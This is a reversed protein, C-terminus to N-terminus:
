YPDSIQASGTVIKGNILATPVTNVVERVSAVRDQINPELSYSRINVVHWYSANANDSAEAANLFFSRFPPNAFHWVYSDTEPLYVDVQLQANKLRAIPSGDTTRVYFMYQPVRMLKSRQSSFTDVTFAEEHSQGPTDGRGHHWLSTISDLNEVGGFFSAAPVDFYFTSTGKVPLSSGEVIATLPNNADPIIFGSTFDATGVWHVVLRVDGPRASDSTNGTARNDYQAALPNNASLGFGDRPIIPSLLLDYKWPRDNQPDAIVPFDFLHQTLGGNVEMRYNPFDGHSCIDHSNIYAPDTGGPDTIPRLYYSTLDGALYRQYLVGAKTQPFAQQYYTSSVILEVSGKATRSDNPVIPNLAYPNVVNVITGGVVVGTAASNALGCKICGGTGTEKIILQSCKNSCTETGKKLTYPEAPEQACALVQYGNHDPDPQGNVTPLTSTTSSASAWIIGSTVDLDCVELRGNGTKEIIGNGCRAVPTVDIISQCGAACYSCSREYGPTCVVGNKNGDDCAEGKDVRNDGCSGPPALAQLAAPTIFCGAVNQFRDVVEADILARPYIKIDRLLGRFFNQGNGGRGITLPATNVDMVPNAARLTNTDVLTGNIYLKMVQVQTTPDWFFTGLVHTWQRIPLAATSSVDTSGTAGVFVVFQVHGNWPNIELDYGGGVGYGGKELIRNWGNVRGLNVTAEVSFSSTPMLAAAHSVTILDDVGDFSFAPKSDNPTSSVYSPCAPATCTGPFGISAADDFIMKQTFKNLKSDNLRWWAATTTDQWHCFSDCARTGNQNGITCSNVVGPDCEEGLGSQVIKDGCYPGYSQCDFNCSRTRTFAYKVGSDEVRVCSGGFTALLASTNCDINQGSANVHSSNCAKEPSIGNVCWGDLTANTTDTIECLEQPQKTNDGCFGSFGFSRCGLNYPIAAVQGPADCRNYLGNFARGDDCIEGAQRDVINDGCVSLQSCLVNGGGLPTTSATWRCTQSCVDVHVLGNTCAGLKSQGPPDCQEGKDIHVVKDGCRGSGLSVIEQDSNCIGQASLVTVHTSSVFDSVFGSANALASFFPLDELHARVQYDQTSTVFNYRYAFSSTACAFSFRNNAISWGTASDHFVCTDPITTNPKNGCQGNLETCFINTSSACTGSVGLQNIPDYPLSVKGLLDGLLSWSQPWVSLTQGPIFSGKQLDPYLPNPLDAAYQTVSAQIKHLDRLRQYNNKLAKSRVACVLGNCDLDSTCPKTVDPHEDDVGCFGYSNFNVNFRLNKMFSSFVEQTEPKANANISFLYMTSYLRGTTTSYNLADVYYNTGSKAAPYGDIDPITQPQGIFGPQELFWDAPLLHRPNSFVQVGIADKNKDTTFIFRKLAPAIAASGQVQVAPRLWPLDDATYDSKGKDACYYSSFNFYGDAILQGANNVAPPTHSNTYQNNAADFNDNNDTTDRYPFVSFPGTASGLTDTYYADLPPWPNACLLVTVHAQGTAVTGLAAGPASTADVVNVAVLVDAEGNNNKATVTTTAVSSDAVTIYPNQVPGWLYNWAYSGPLSQITQGDNTGPAATFVTSSGTRNFLWQHPTVAVLDVTCLQTATGFWWRNEPIIKVGQVSKIGDKLIIAYRTDPNLPQNLKVNVHAGGTIPDNNIVDVNGFDTSACWRIPNLPAAAGASGGFIWGVVAHVWQALRQYWSGTHGSPSASALLLATVDEPCNGVGNDGRAILLNGPLSNKDIAQNFNAWIVTNPCVPYTPPTTTAPTTSILQPRLHCCSDKGVGMNQDGTASVCDLDTQYGCAIRYEGSGEVPGGRTQDTTRAIIDTRQALPIGSPVGLGVGTALTWPDIIGQHITAWRSNECTADEGVGVVGDGCVSPQVYLLNSGIHQLQANCGERPHKPDNGCGNNVSVDPTSDLAKLLCYPTCIAPDWLTTGDCGVDEDADLVGDACQSLARGCAAQYALATFGGYAVEPAQVTAPDHSECWQRALRTGTHLCQSTCNFASQPDLPNATTGLDCDEGSGPQGGNGCLSTQVTQTGSAGSATTQSGAHLCNATCGIMTAPDKPDCAEGISHDTKADGCTAPNTNGLYKCDLGCGASQSPNKCDEGAELRGNGCVPVVTQVGQTAPIDSGQRTCQNTCYPSHGSTSFKTVDAVAVDSSQWSWNVSWPNLRQGEASCADPSSFPQSSYVAKDHITKAEFEKPKIAVHDIKCAEKKTIFSWTFAKRLPRGGTSLPNGWESASWLQKTKANPDTDDASIIAQYKTNPKLPTSGPVSNAFRLVTYDSQADLIVDGLNLVPTTSLCNEDHCELLQVSGNQVAGPLNRFSMTTNFRVGVEANTCAALCKPWWDIVEPDTLDITLPSFGPVPASNPKSAEARVPVSDNPVGVGKTSRLSSVQATILNSVGFIDAYTSNNYQPVNWQWSYGSMDMMVCHQTSLGHGRYLVDPMPRALIRTWYSSPTIVVRSLACEQDDTQFTFCYSSNGGCPKDAALPIKSGAAGASQIGNNLVVQFKTNNFWAGTDPHIEIATLPVGNAGQQSVAQTLSFNTFAQPTVCQNGTFSACTFVQVNNKNLTNADVTTSFEVTAIASRCVKDADTNGDGNWERSPSPSPLPLVGQADPTDSCHENVHPVPPIDRTSFRWVYGTSRTEGACLESNPKCLGVDGGSQCCRYGNLPCVPQQNADLNKTCDVATFAIPNSMVKDAPRYVVVPGTQATNAPVATISGDTFAQVVGAVRTSVDAGPAQAGKYYVQPSANAAPPNVKGQFLNSIETDSLAREYVRVEDIGGNYYVGGLHDTQGIHINPHFSNYAAEIHTTIPQTKQLQGNVYIKLYQDAKYVGVVQLWGQLSAAPYATATVAGLFSGANDRIWIRISGDQQYETGSRYDDVIPNRAQLSPKIWASYTLENSTPLHFNSDVYQHDASNAPNDFTLAQGFPGNGTQVTGVIAGDHNQGSLDKVTQGNITAADFSYFLVPDLSVSATFREGNLTMTQGAGFPIPGSTPDIKCLGPPPNGSTLEYTANPTIESTLHDPYRVVQVFYKQGVQGHDVPFKVIIQQDQWFDSAKCAAPFSFKELDGGIDGGTASGKFWVNGQQKGFNKGTLTIYTGEPGQGPTVAVIQPANSAVGALITFAVGNSEVNNNTVKVGVAGPELAPVLAMISDTKWDASNVVAKTDGFLVNDGANDVTVGFNKGVVRVQDGPQGVTCPQGNACVIGCVGPRVEATVQFDPVITPGWVQSKTVPDNSTDTFTRTVGDIGKIPATVVKIPGSVAGEPVAVLIQNQTWSKFGACGALDAQIWHSADNVDPTFVKSFYVIGATAGFYKGAVTVFTHPGGSAPSFKQISMKDLCIGTTANPPIECWLSACDQSSTCTSGPCAGCKPGGCDLATEDFDQKGDSCYAPRLIAHTIDYGRHAASDLGLAQLLYDGNNLGTTSWPIEVSGSTPCGTLAKSGVFNLRAAIFVGVQNSGADIVAVDEQGDANFDGAVIADASGGVSINALESFKQAGGGAYVGFNGAVGQTVLADLAGEGTVDVLTMDNPRGGTVAVRVLPKFTGDGNGSLVSLSQDGRNATVVDLKGDNDIDGSAIAVPNTGVLVPVADAFIGNGQNILVSVSRAGANAVAIDPKGDRNFDGTTIDNSTTDASYSVANQFTGDGNGKLVVASGQRSGNTSVVALDSKSDANFDAVALAMLTGAVPFNAPAQFTGDGNGLLISVGTPNTVVVDAQGDGNFDGVKPQLPSAPVSTVHPASLQGDPTGLYVVVENAVKYTVVLDARGDKNVDASVLAFPATAREPLTVKPSFLTGATASFLSMSALGQDDTFNVKVPVTDGVAYATGPTPVVFSVQPPETDVGSGATFDIPGCPKIACNLKLKGDVTAINLPNPIQLRYSGGAALCDNTEPNNGCTGRPIFVAINPPGGSQWDGAVPANSQDTLIANGALTTLDVPKNFIIQLHPNRSCQPGPAPMTNVYFLTDLSGGGPGGGCQNCDGGCDVGTEGEDQAGNVCHLPLGQTAAILRSIVFSVIAYSSLIIALGIVANVLIKKAEGIREENGGATMWIYGAYLCLVVAVIGLLGLAVRIIRAITVRIDTAGTAGITQQIQNNLGIQEATIPGSPTQAQVRLAFFVAGLGILITLCFVALALKKRGFQSM